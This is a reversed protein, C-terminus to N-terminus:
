LPIVGLAASFDAVREVFQLGVGARSSPNLVVPPQWGM